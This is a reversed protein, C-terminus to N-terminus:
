NLICITNIIYKPYIPHRYDGFHPLLRDLYKAYLVM